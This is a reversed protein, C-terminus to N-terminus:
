FSVFKMVDDIFLYKFCVKVDDCTRDITCFDVCHKYLQVDSCSENGLFVDYVKYCDHM